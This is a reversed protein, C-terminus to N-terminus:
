EYNTEIRALIVKVGLICIIWAIMYAVAPINMESFSYLVVAALLIFVGAAIVIGSIVSKKICM